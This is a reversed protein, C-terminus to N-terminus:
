KKMGYRTFFAILRNGIAPDTAWGPILGWRLLVAERTPSSSGPKERVTLVPQTPAINYRASFPPLNPEDIPFQALLEAL